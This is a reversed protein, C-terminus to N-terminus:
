LNMKLDTEKERKRGKKIGNKLKHIDRKNCVVYSIRIDKIMDEPYAITDQTVKINNKPNTKKCILIQPTHQRSHETSHTTTVTVVVTMWM